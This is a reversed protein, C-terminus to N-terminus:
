KSEEQQGERRHLTACATANQQTKNSRDLISATKDALAPRESRLDSGPQRHRRSDRCRTGHITATCKAPPLSPPQLAISV